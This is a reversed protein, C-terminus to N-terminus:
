GAGAPRRGSDLQAVEAYLRRSRDILGRAALPLNGIDQTPDVEGLGDAPLVAADTM